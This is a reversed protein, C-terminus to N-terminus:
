IATDVTHQGAQEALNQRQTRNQGLAQRAARAALRQAATPLPGRPAQGAAVLVGAGCQQVTPQQLVAALRGVTQLDAQLAAGDAERHLVPVSRGRVRTFPSGM